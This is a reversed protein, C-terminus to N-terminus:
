SKQIHDLYERLRIVLDGEGGLEPAGALVSQLQSQLNAIDYVVTMGRREMEGAIELQHDDFVEGHRKLRPVLVLPRDHELAALISGTGAHCVVLRAEAYLKRVEDRSMFRFYDCNVPQHDTSGIQMVVREDIEGAIRDMERVLRPFARMGGVTVFIV